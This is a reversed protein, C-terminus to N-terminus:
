PGRLYYKLGDIWGIIKFFLSVDSIRIHVTGNTLSKKDRKGKSSKSISCCTKIFQKKPINTLRSWYNVSKEIDVNPHALLQIKIKKDEVNLIKRFFKMILKIMEPDSNAFDVSKWKSGFAGKKYGEAWYLSIGAVFLPNKMLNVVEKQSEERIKDSREKALITQNKNRRILGETSKKYVRASIKNRAEPSLKIDKLWGSLTSKPIKLKQSIQSYSNGKIRLGIAINKDSRM